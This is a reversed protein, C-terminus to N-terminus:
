RAANTTSGLSIRITPDVLSFLQFHASQVHRVPGEAVFNTAYVEALKQAAGATEEIGSARIKEYAAKLSNGANDAQRLIKM